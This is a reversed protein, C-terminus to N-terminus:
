DRSEWPRRHDPEGRGVGDLKRLVRRLTDLDDRTLALLAPPPQHFEELLQERAEAGRPTLVVLRVRRDEPSMRREALGLREIRDIIWTANSADCAWEEALASMTRGEEQDLASLARADNPTLGHHALVKERAPATRVLFDFMSEWTSRAITAKSPSASTM